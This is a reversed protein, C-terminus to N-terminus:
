RQGGLIVAPLWGYSELRSFDVGPDSESSVEITSCGGVMAAALLAALVGRRCLM